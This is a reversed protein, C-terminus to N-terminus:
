YEIMRYSNIVNKQIEVPNNYDGNTIYNLIDHNFFLDDNRHEVASYGFDKLYTRIKNKKRKENNHEISMLGIKFKNLDICKLVALEAGEIDLSMYEIFEPALFRELLETPNITDVHISQKTITKRLEANSDTDAYEQFSSLGHADLFRLSQRSESWLAANVSICTRTKCISRYPVPNPEVIIGDWNEVKELFFTNSHMIGEFGGFDLFFGGKKNKYVDSVWKDQGIHSMYLM